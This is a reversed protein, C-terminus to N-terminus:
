DLAQIMCLKGHDPNSKNWEYTIGYETGDAKIMYLVLMPCDLTIDSSDKNITIEMKNEQISKVATVCSTTVAQYRTKIFLFQIVCIALLTLFVVQHSKMSKQKMCKVIFFILWGVTLIISLLPILGMLEHMHYSFITYIGYRSMEGDCLYITWLLIGILSIIIKIKRRHNM